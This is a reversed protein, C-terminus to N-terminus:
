DEEEPEETECRGSCHYIAECYCQQYCACWEQAGLYFLGRKLGPVYIVGHLHAKLPHGDDAIMNIEVIERATCKVIHGDAVQVGLDFGEEVEMMDSLCPTFHSSAGTDPVWNRMDHGIGISRLPPDLSEAQKV